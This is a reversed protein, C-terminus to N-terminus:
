IGAAHHAIDVEARDLGHERPNLGGEDVDSRFLAGKEVGGVQDLRLSAFHRGLARVFGAVPFAGADVPPFASPTRPYAPPPPPGSPPPPPPDREDRRRRGLTASSSFRPSAFSTCTM